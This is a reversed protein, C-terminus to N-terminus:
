KHKNVKKAAAISARRTAQLWFFMAGLYWGFMSTKLAAIHFILLTNVTFM